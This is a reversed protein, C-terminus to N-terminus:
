VACNCVIMKGEVFIDKAFHSLVSGEEKPCCGSLRCHTAVWSLFSRGGAILLYCVREQDMASMSDACTNIM